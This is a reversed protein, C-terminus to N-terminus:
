FQRGHHIHRLYQRENMLVLADVLIPTLGERDRDPEMSSSERKYVRYTMGPTPLVADQENTVERGKGCGRSTGSHCSYTVFADRLQGKARDGLEVRNPVKTQLCRWQQNDDRVFNITYKCHYQHSIVPQPTFCYKRENPCKVVTSLQPRIVFCSRIM